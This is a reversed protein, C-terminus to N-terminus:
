VIQKPKIERSCLGGDCGKEIMSDEKSKKWEIKRIGKILEEYEEREIRSYPMQPYCYEDTHPLVSFSKVDTIAGSIFHELDHYERNKTNFYITCSVSNDSYHRQLAKQLNGQEWMSVEDITRADSQHLPIEVVSTTNPSHFEPEIKYGADKLLQLTDSTNDIRMRRICYKYIPFHIGSSVGVLQSITGSPKVTTVRIAEPIGAEDALEKNVKRIVKYMKRFKEIMGNMTETHYYEAIGSMSIGIRRNRAVVRNTDCSDSVLLSITSAYLTGIFASEILDELDRNRTPFIEFLNCFENRELPIEGCPNIGIARDQEAERGIPHKSGVRGSNKINIMNLIGPEGNVRIRECIEALKSFDETEKLVVSNNSMWGILEREPYKQYNKLDIFEQDYPSGLCIESSRRINGAVVCIGISNFIGCILMTEGFTRGETNPIQSIAKECIGISYSNEAPFLDKFRQVMKISAQNKEEQNTSKKTEIYCDFLARIRQHLEHLPEPGSSVGGFCKIPTGKPRLKSYDFHVVKYPQELYSRILMDVSKVWGERSDHIAYITKECSCKDSFNYSCKECGPTKANNLEDNHNVDFGIGCGYMLANMTWSAAKALGTDPSCFGCNNFASAGKKYGFETGCIYLGRGPPLGKMEMFVRGMRLAIDNWKQENWEIGHNVYWNKRISLIGTVVRIIVDPFTEKTGDTKLRSYTRNFVSESFPGYGFHFNISRIRDEIEKPMHYKYIIEPVKIMGQLLPETSDELYTITMKKM